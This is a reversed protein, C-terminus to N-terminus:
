EGHKAQTDLAKLTKIYRQTNELGLVVKRCNLDDLHQRCVSLEPAQKFFRVEENLFKYHEKSTRVLAWKPATDGNVIKWNGAQRNEAVVLFSTYRPQQKPFVLKSAEFRLYPFEEVREPDSLPDETSGDALTYETESLRYRRALAEEAIRIAAIDVQVTVWYWGQHDPCASVIDYGRIRAVDAWQQPPKTLVQLYLPWNAEVRATKMDLDIFRKVTKVVQAQEKPDFQAQIAPKDACPELAAVVQSSGLAFVTLIYFLLKFRM